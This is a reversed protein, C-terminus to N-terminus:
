YDGGLLLQKSGPGGPMEGFGVSAKGLKGPKRTVSATGEPPWGGALRPPPYDIEPPPLSFRGSVDGQQQQPGQQAKDTGSADPDYSDEGAARHL